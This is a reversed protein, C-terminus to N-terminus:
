QKSEECEDDGVHNENQDLIKEEIKNASKEIQELPMSIVVSYTLKKSKFYSYSNDFVVTDSVFLPPSQLHMLPPMEAIIVRCNSV